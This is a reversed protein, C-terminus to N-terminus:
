QDSRILTGNELDILKLAYLIDLTQVFRAYTAIHPDTRVSQWLRDPTQPHRLRKLLLAGLGLFSDELPLYKTPFLM